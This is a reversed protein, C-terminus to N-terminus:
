KKINKANFHCLYGYISHKNTITAKMGLFKFIIRDDFWIICFGFKEAFTQEIFFAEAYKLGCPLGRYHNLSVAKNAYDNHKIQSKYHSILARKQEAVGSIDLYLNPNPIPSWVEYSVIRTKRWFRLIRKVRALIPNHDIHTEYGNPVFVYDYRKLNLTNIKELNKYVERDKIMLNRYNKIKAFEMTEQLEKLRTKVILEEDYDGNGGGRRGDTLVVVEFNQPYTLLLGGCGISEDDAHPAIVLCKDDPKIKIFNM